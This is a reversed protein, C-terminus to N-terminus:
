AAAERELFRAYMRRARTSAEDTKMLAPREDFLDRDGLNRQQAEIMPKDECEFAHRLRKAHQENFEQSDALYNRSNLYFYHTSRESEPTSIHLNWSGITTEGDGTRAISRNTLVMVGNPHWVVDTVMEVTAVADPFLPRHVPLPAVDDASWSVRVFDAGEKVMAPMTTMVGGGLTDPHLYDAHTLDLINDEVLHHGARTPLHGKSYSNPPLGEFRSLDPIKGTDAADPSGMWVWIISHRECAPFSVANLAKPTPGHPNEICRGGTAFKLGHYMCRVGDPELTGHSLPAFRHPCRDELAVVDGEANRFMLLDRCAITRALMTGSALEDGWGAVYWVNMLLAM